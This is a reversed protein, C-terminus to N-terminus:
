MVHLDLFELTLRDPGVRMIHFRATLDSRRGSLPVDEYHVMGLYRRPDLGFLDRRDVDMRALIESRDPRGELPTIEFREVGWEDRLGQITEPDPDLVGYGDIVSDLSEATWDCEEDSHPLLELADRYRRAALLESWEVVLARIEDDTATLPLTRM